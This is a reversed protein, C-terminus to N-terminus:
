IIFGLYVLKCTTAIFLFDFLAIVGSIHEKIMTFHVFQHYLLFLIQSILQRVKLRFKETTNTISKESVVSDDFHYRVLSILRM